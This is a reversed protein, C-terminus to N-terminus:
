YVSKNHLSSKKVKVKLDNNDTVHQKAMVDGRPFTTYKGIRQWLWWLARHTQIKTSLQFSIKFMYCLISPKIMSNFVGICCFRYLMVFYFYMNGEFSNHNKEKMFLTYFVIINTILTMFLESIRRSFWM